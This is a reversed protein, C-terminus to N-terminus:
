YKEVPLIAVESRSFLNIIKISYSGHNTDRFNVDMCRGFEDRFNIRELKGKEYEMTENNWVNSYEETLSNNLQNITKDFPTTIYSQIISDIVKPFSM